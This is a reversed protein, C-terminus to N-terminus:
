ALGAFHALSRGFSSSPRGAWPAVAMGPEGAPGRRADNLGQTACPEQRPYSLLAPPNTPMATSKGDRGTGLDRGTAVRLVLSYLDLHAM